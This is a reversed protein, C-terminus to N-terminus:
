FKSTWRAVVDNATYGSTFQGFYKVTLDNRANIQYTGGVGVLFSDAGPDSSLVNFGSGGPASAFAAHVTQVTDLYEHQWAVSLEPKFGGWNGSVRLGLVSAVSSADSDSIKLAAGTGNPDSETFGDLQAGAIGLGLFPTATVNPTVVFRRGGEGYFSVVSSDPSGSPDVPSPNIGQFDRHMSGSYVGASVIGRGYWVTNDWAGYAAFQGGQYDGSAGDLGGFRDFNMNSSFYGGALGLFIHDTVAYDGGFLLGYQDESYGPANSDGSDTNWGGTVRGWLQVHGPNFCATPGHAASSGAGPVYNTGCDLRDTITSNIEGTSGLVSGLMQAYQAGSLQDLIKAYDSQSDVLLLNQVLDSFKGSAPLKSYVDDIGGGVASENKSLGGVSGFGQRTVKLDVNGNDDYIAQTKLVVSNDVVHDFKGNRVDAAIVNNYRLNKGYLGKAYNAALTGDLNATVANVTPYDGAGDKTNLELALTGTHGNTFTNVYVASPGDVDNTNGLILKGHSDVTLSGELVLDPNVIGDLNTQGDTVHVLDDPTIDINGFISAAGGGNSDMLNIVVPGPAPVFNMLDEAKGNPTGDTNIANGRHVTTGGDTSYGAWLQGGDNTVTAQGPDIGDKDAAVVIASAFAHPGQAYAYVLGSNTIVADNEKSPDFIGIANATADAGAAANVIANASITGTNNLLGDVTGDTEISIGLATAHAHQGAVEPDVVTATAAATIEGANAINLTLTPSGYGEVEYGVAFAHADATAPALSDAVALAQASIKGGAQNDLKATATTDNYLGVFVGWAHADSFAEASAKSKAEAYGSISGSNTVSAAATLSGRIEQYAGSGGAWASATTARSTDLGGAAARADGSISATNTITAKSDADIGDGDSTGGASSGTVSQGIGFASANAAVLGGSATAKATVAITDTNDATASLSPAPDVRQQIGFDRAEAIAYTAAQADAVAAVKITGTNSTIAQAVVGAIREGEASQFVGGVYTAVALAFGPGAM